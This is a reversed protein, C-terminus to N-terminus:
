AIYVTCFFQPTPFIKFKYKVALSDIERIEEPYYNLYNNLTKLDLKVIVIVLFVGTTILSVM